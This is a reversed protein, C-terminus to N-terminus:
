WDEDYPELWPAVRLAAEERASRVRLRLRRRLTMPPPSYRPVYTGPKIPIEVVEGIPEKAQEELTQDMWIEKLVGKFDGGSAMAMM